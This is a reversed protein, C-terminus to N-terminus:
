DGTSAHGPTETRLEAMPIDGFRMTTGHAAPVPTRFIVELQAELATGRHSRRSPDAKFEKVLLKGVDETTLRTDGPSEGDQAVAFAKPAYRGELIEARLKTLLAEAESRTL